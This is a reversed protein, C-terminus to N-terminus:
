IKLVDFKNNRNSTTTADTKEPRKCTKRKSTQVFRHFCDGRIQTFEDGDDKVFKEHNMANIKQHGTSPHFCWAAPAKEERVTLIETSCYKSRCGLRDTGEEEEELEVVNRVIWVGGVGGDEESELQGGSRRCDDDKRTSALSEGDVCQRSTDSEVACGASDKTGGAKEIRGFARGQTRWIQKLRKKGAGTM